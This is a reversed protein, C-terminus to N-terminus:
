LRNRELAKPIAFARKPFKTQLFQSLIDLQIPFLQLRNILQQLLKILNSCCNIKQTMQSSFCGKEMLARRSSFSNNKFGYLWPLLDCWSFKSRSIMKIVFIRKKPSLVYIRRFFFNKEFLAVVRFADWPIPMTACMKFYRELKRYFVNGCYSLKHELRNPM